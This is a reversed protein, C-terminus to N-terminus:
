AAASIMRAPSTMHGAASCQSLQQMPTWDVHLCLCCATVATTELSLVPGRTCCVMCSLGRVSVPSIYNAVRVEGLGPRPQWASIEVARNEQQKHFAKLFANDNDLLQQCLARRLGDYM